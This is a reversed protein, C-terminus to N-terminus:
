WPFFSNMRSMPQGVNHNLAGMQYRMVDTSAAMARSSQEISGMNAQMSEMQVSMNQTTEAITNMERTVTQMEQSVRQISDTLAAVNQALSSVDRTLNYVLFFGYGALLVFAAMLPYVVLEWRRSSAEFCDALRNLSMHQGSGVPEPTSAAQTEVAQKM